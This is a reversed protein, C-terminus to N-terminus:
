KIVVSPASLMVTKTTSVLISSRPDFGPRSQTRKASISEPFPM